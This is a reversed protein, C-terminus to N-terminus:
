RIEKTENQVVNTFNEDKDSCNYSSINEEQKKILCNEMIKTVDKKTDQYNKTEQPENDDNNSGM